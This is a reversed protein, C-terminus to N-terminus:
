DEYLVTAHPTIPIGRCTPIWGDTAGDDQLANEVRMTKVTAPAAAKISESNM